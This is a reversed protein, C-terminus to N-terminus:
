PSPVKYDVVCRANHNFIIITVRSSPNKNIEYLFSVVGAKASAFQSGYMSGSDDLM